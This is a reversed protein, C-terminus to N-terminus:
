KCDRILELLKDAYRDYETAVTQYTPISTAEAAAAAKAAAAAAWAAAEAEAAAEAATDFKILDTEGGRYLEIVNEITKLVDPFEQHDFKDLVGELIYILFPAKINELDSGVNIAQLFLLPFTKSKELSMGEFLADELRGLWEPVGLEYPYKSHNYDNLTCGVACGKGESSFGVGRILEDAKIHEDMRAVYKEKVAVDNHYALMGDREKNM